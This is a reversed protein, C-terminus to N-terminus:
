SKPKQRQVSTKPAQAQFNIKISYFRKFPIHNRHICCHIRHICYQWDLDVTTPAFSDFINCNHGFWQCGLQTHRM